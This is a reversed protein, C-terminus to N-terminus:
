RLIYQINCIYIIYLAINIEMLCQVSLRINKSVKHYDM